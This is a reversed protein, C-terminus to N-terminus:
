YWFTERPVANGITAPTQDTLDKAIEAALMDRCSQPLEERLLGLMRPGAVLVLRDFRHAVRDAEIKQAVERAFHTMEHRESSREGNVGHHHGAAGGFRRGERDTEMDKDKLGAAGNRLSGRQALSSPSSADFFNAERADAVVIRVNM